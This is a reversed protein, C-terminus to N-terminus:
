NANAHRGDRLKKLLRKKTKKDGAYELADRYQRVANEFRGRAIEIDGIMEFALSNDPRIELVQRLHEMAEDSKNIESYLEALALRAAAYNPQIQIVKEYHGAAEIAEDTPWGRSEARQNLTRALSLRSPLYNPQRDLNEKWLGIAEDVRSAQKKDQRALLVALNHRPELLEGDLALAERYHTEAERSKGQSTKLHGMASLAIALHRGRQEGPLGRAREVAEKYTAEAERLRNLREYVLGLNYYLYPFEPTAEIADQYTRIAEDYDGLQMYTLAKNHYPYAWNPALDIADEFALLAREYSAQELYAIGLANYSYAGTPDLRAARELVNTARRYDKEFIAVRGEFFAERAELLLSEPTLVRAQASYAAGELFDTRTQSVQEGQLYRLLVQQGEIDLKARLINSYHLYLNRPLRRRLRGLLVLANEPDNPLVLNSSLAEMYRKIAVDVGEDIERQRPAAPPVTSRSWEDGQRSEAQSFLAKISPDPGRWEPMELGPKRLDSITATNEFSGFDRPHQRDYTAEEVRDQVYDILDSITVVGDQGYDAAGNLGRLLFYTFAGHGGGFQPGEYSVERARSAMFGVIEGNAQALREVFSNIENSKSKITGVAGAHCVDVYIQVHGVKHLQEQVLQYLDAMPIATAALDQPDSDYTVIFGQRTQPDVTGHSAIFILVTDRPGAEVKLLSNIATRISGTTAEENLLVQIRDDPLQGGRPSRLHQEFVTADRHAFRLPRIRLNQYDSIGVLLAFTKGSAGDDRVGRLEKSIEEEDQVFLRSRIWVADPWSELIEQYEQKAQISLGYSDLIAARAIRSALDRSGQQQVNSVNQLEEELKARREPALGALDSSEGGQANEIGLDRALSGGLHQQTAPAGRSLIPLVCVPAAVADTRTGSNLEIGGPQFSVRGNEPLSHEKENPCYLFRVSGRLAHLADGEFLLDGVRATLPLSTDKRILEASEVNTILGVPRDLQDPDTPAASCWVCSYLCCVLLVLKRRITRSSPTSPVGRSTQGLATAGEDKVTKSGTASVDMDDGCVAGFPGGLLDM